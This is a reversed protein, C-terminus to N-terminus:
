SRPLFVLAFRCDPDPQFHYEAHSDVKVTKFLRWQTTDDSARYKVDIASRARQFIQKGSVQDEDPGDVAPDFYGTKEVAARIMRFYSAQIDERREPSEQGDLRKWAVRSREDAVIGYEGVSEILRGYSDEDLDQWGSHTITQAVVPNSLTATTAARRGIGGLLGLPSASTVLEGSTDANILGQLVIVPIGLTAMQRITDASVFRDTPVLVAFSQGEQRSRLADFAEAYERTDCRAVFYVAHRISPDPKFTGTRYVGRLGAIPEVKGGACLPRRLAECLVRPDVGLVEVDKLILDIDECEPPDNGCVAQFTGDGREIVQRPCGAGGPRPCAVADAIRLYPLLGGAELAAVLDRGLRKRLDCRPGALPFDTEILEWFPSLDLAVM